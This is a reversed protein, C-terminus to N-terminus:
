PNPMNILQKLEALGHGKQAALDIAKNFNEHIEQSIGAIANDVKKKVESKTKRSAIYYGIVFAGIAWIYKNDM